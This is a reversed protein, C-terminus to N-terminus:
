IFFSACPCCYMSNSTLHHRHVPAAPPLRLGFPTRAAPQPAPTPGSAEPIAPLNDAHPHPQDTIPSCQFPYNPGLCLALFIRLINYPCHSSRLYPLLSHHLTAASPGHTTLVMFILQRETHSVPALQVHDMPLRGHHLMALTM